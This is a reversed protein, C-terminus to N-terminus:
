VGGAKLGILVAALALGAGALAGAIFVRVTERGLFAAIRTAARRIFSFAPSRGRLRVVPPGIGIFSGQAKDFRYFGARRGLAPDDILVRGIDGDALNAIVGPSAGIRIEGDAGRNPTEGPADGAADHPRPHQGDGAGGEDRADCPPKRM